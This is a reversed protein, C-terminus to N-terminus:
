INSYHNNNRSQKTLLKIWTIKRKYILLQANIEPKKSTQFNTSKSKLRMDSRIVKENIIKYKYIYLLQLHM